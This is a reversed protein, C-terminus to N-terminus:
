KSRTRLLENVKTRKLSVLQFSSNGKVPTKRGRPMKSPVWNAACSEQINNVCSWRSPHSQTFGRCPFVQGTILVADQVPWCRGCALTNVGGRNKWGEGSGTTSQGSNVTGGCLQEWTLLQPQGQAGKGAKLLPLITIQLAHSHKLDKRPKAPFRITKLRSSCM